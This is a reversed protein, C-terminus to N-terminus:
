RDGRFNQEKLHAELRKLYALEIGLDNAYNQLMYPNFVGGDTIRYTQSRVVRTRQGELYVGARTVMDHEIAGFIFRLVKGQMSVIIACDNKGLKEGISKIIEDLQNADTRRFDHTGIYRLRFQKGSHGNAIPRSEAHGNQLKM